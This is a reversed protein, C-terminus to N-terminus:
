GQPNCGFYAFPVAPLLATHSNGPNFTGSIGTTRAIGSMLTGPTVGKCASPGYGEAGAGTTISVLLCGALLFGAITRRM